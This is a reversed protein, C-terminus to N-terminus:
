LEGRHRDCAPAVRGAPPLGGRSQGVVFFATATPSSTAREAEDRKVQIDAASISASEESLAGGPIPGGVAAAAGGGLDDALATDPM